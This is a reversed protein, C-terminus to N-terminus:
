GALAAKGGKGTLCPGLPPLPPLFSLPPSRPSLGRPSYRGHWPLWGPDGATGPATGLPPDQLLPPGLGLRSIGVRSPPGGPRFPFPLGKTERALM